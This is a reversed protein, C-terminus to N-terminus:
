LSPLANYVGADSLSGELQAIKFPYGTPSALPSTFVQGTGSAARALLRRKLDDRLGSERSFAFATGVQVGAAGQSLAELLRERSGYGGALWFPVGLSRLDPISVRDRDGYHPKGTRNLQLAGRPPANHGGAAPGEVVLGNVVGSARRLM